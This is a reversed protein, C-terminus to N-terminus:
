VIAVCHHRQVRVRPDIEIGIARACRGVLHWHAGGDLHRELLNGWALQDVFPPDDALPSFDSAQYRVSYAAKLPCRSRYLRLGFSCIKPDISEISAGVSRM